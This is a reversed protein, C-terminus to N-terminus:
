VSPAKPGTEAERAETEKDTPCRHIDPPSLSIVCLPFTIMTTPSAAM